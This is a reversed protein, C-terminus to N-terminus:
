GVAGKVNSFGVRMAIIKSLFKSMDHGVKERSKQASFSLRNRNDRLTMCKSMLMRKRVISNGVNRYGSIKAHEHQPKINLRRGKQSRPMSWRHGCEVPLTGEVARDFPLHLLFLLVYITHIPREESGPIPPSLVVTKNYTNSCM